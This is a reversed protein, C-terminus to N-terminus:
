RFGLGLEISQRMAAPRDMDIIFNVVVLDEHEAIRVVLAESHLFMYGSLADLAKRITPQERVLLALAGLNAVTRSEALRLGFDSKSSRIASEELLRVVAKVPVKLEPDELCVAPLGNIMLMRYPDLGLARSLEAYNTLAASRILRAHRTQITM